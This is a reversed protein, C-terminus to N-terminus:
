LLWGQLGGAVCVWIVSSSALCSRHGQCIWLHKMDDLDAMVGKEAEQGMPSLSEAEESLGNQDTYWVGFAHPHSFYKNLFQKKGM